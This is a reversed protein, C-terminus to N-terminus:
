LIDLQNCKASQLHIWDTFSHVSPHVSPLPSPPTWGGVGTDKTCPAIWNNWEFAGEKITAGIYFPLSVVVDGGGGGGGGAEEEEEEVKKKDVGGGEDERRRLMLRRRGVNSSM